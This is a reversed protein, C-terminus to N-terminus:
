YPFGGSVTLRRPALRNGAVGSEMVGQQWREDPGGPISLMMMVMLHHDTRPSGADRGKRSCGLLTGLPVSGAAGLGWQLPSGHPCDKSGTAVVSLLLPCGSIGVLALAAAGERLGLLAGAASGPVPSVALPRHPYTLPDQVCAGAVGPVCHLSPLLCHQEEPM